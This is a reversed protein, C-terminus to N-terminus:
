FEVEKRYPQDRLDPGDRLKTLEGTVPKLIWVSAFASWPSVLIRITESDVARMSSISFYEPARVNVSEPFHGRRLYERLGSTTVVVIGEGGTAFWSEDPAILGCTPDGYHDGADRQERTSREVIAASEYEHVLVFHESEALVRRL